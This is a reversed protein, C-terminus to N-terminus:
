LQDQLLLHLHQGEGLTWAVSQGPLLMLQSLQSCMGEWCICWCSVRFYVQLHIVNLPIQSICHSHHLLGLPYKQNSFWPNTMLIHAVHWLAALSSGRMRASRIQNMQAPATYTGRGRAWGAPSPTTFAALLWACSFASAEDVAGSCPSWPPYPSLLWAWCLSCIASRGQHCPLDLTMGLLWHTLVPVLGPATVLTLRLGTLALCARLSLAMRTCCRWADKQLQCGWLPVTSGLAPSFLSQESGALKGCIFLSDPSLARFSAAWRGFSFCPGLCLFFMPFCWRKYSWESFLQVIKVQFM